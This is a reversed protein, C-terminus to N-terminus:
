LNFRQINAGSFPIEFLATLQEASPDLIQEVEPESIPENPNIPPLVVNPDEVDIPPPEPKPGPGPGPGPGHPTLYVLVVANHLYFNVRQLGHVNFQEDNITSFRTGRIRGGAARVVGFANGDSPAFGNIGFVQLTGGVRATGGAQIHDYKSPNTGAIGLQLTGLPGQAYNHGVNITL